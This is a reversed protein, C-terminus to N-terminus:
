GEGLLRRVGPATPDDPAAALFRRLTADAEPPGPVLTM